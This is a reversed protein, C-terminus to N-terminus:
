FSGPTITDRKDATILRALIRINIEESIFHTSGDVFVFGAGGPHFSYVEDDNTCNIPCSYPLSTVSGNQSSAGHLTLGCRHDAWGAGRVMRVPNINRLEYLDPRGASEGVLITNSAGDTIRRMKNPGYGDRAMVGLAAVDVLNGVPPAIRADIGEIPVYDGVATLYTPINNAPSTNNDLHDEDPSSPCEFIPIRQGVVPANPLEHWELKLNYQEYLVKEELYPLVDIAWSRRISTNRTFSTPFSGRAVEYGLIALGIQKLHSQCRTRQAAERSATIAPLLLAVLVGIIAIVVLLEV